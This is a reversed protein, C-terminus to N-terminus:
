DTIGPPKYSELLDKIEAAREKLLSGKEVAFPLGALALEVYVPLYEPAQANMAALHKRVTGIDGRPYPGAVAQPIGVSDLNAAAAPIMPTLARVGEERTHDFKDWMSAAVSALVALLNGM